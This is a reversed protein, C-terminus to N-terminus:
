FYVESKSVWEHNCKYCYPCGSCSPAALFDAETGNDCADYKKRLEAETDYMGSSFCKVLFEGADM